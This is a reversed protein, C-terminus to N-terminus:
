VHRSVPICTHASVCVQFPQAVHCKDSAGYHSVFTCLKLYFRNLESQQPALMHAHTHWLASPHRPGNMWQKQVYYTAAANMLWRTISPSSSFFCEYAPPIISLHLSFCSLLKSFALRPDPPSPPPYCFSICSCSTLSFSVLMLLSSSLSFLLVALLWSQTTYCAPLATQM